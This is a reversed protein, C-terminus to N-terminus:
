GLRLQYEILRDRLSALSLQGLHGVPPSPGYTQDRAAAAAASLSAQRTYTVRAAAAPTSAPPM